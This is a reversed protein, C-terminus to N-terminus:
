NFGQSGYNFSHSVLVYSGEGVEGEEPVGTTGNSIIDWDSWPDGLSTNIAALATSTLTALIESTVYATQNLDISATEM